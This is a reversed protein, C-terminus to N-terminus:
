FSFWPKHSLSKVLAADREECKKVIDVTQAERSNADDLNGSEEDAYAIWGGM